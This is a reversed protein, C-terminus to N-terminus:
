YKSSLHAEALWKNRCYIQLDELWYSALAKLGSYRGIEALWYTSGSFRGIEALWYSHLTIHLIRV